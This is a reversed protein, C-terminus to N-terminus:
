EDGKFTIKDVKYDGYPNYDDLSDGQNLRKIVDDPLPFRDKEIGSYLARRANLTEGGGYLIETLEKIKIRIFEINKTITPNITGRLTKLVEFYMGSQYAILASYEPLGHLMVYKTVALNVYNNEGILVAEVNKDFMGKKDSRFGVHVCAVKKREWFDPYELRLPSNMDYMLVVYRFLKLKDVGYDSEKQNFETYVSLKDVLNDDNPNFLMTSVYKFKDM